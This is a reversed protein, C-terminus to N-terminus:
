LQYESMLVLSEDCYDFTEHFFWASGKTARGTNHERGKAQKELPMRTFSLFIPGYPTPPGFSSTEGWRQLSASSPDVKYVTLPISCLGFWNEKGEKGSRGTIRELAKEMIGIITGTITVTGTIVPGTIILTGLIMHATLRNDHLLGINEMGTM